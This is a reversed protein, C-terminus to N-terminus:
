DKGPSGGVQRPDRLPICAAESAATFRRRESTDQRSPLHAAAGVARRGPTWKGRFSSDVAGHSLVTPELLRCAPPTGTATGRCPPFSASHSGLRSQEGRCTRAGAPQSCRCGGEPAQGPFPLLCPLVHCLPPRAAGPVYRQPNFASQVTDLDAFADGALSGAARWVAWLLGVRGLM